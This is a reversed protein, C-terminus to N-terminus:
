APGGSLHTPLPYHTTPLNKISFQSNLISFKPKRQKAVSKDELFRSKLGAIYNQLTPNSDWSERFCAPSRKTPQLGVSCSEKDSLILFSFHSILFKPIRQQAISKDELFRSKPGAIYPQLGTGLSWHGIVLSEGRAVQSKLALPGHKLSAVAGCAGGIVLSWHSIALSPALPAM